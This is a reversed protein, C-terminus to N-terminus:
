SCAPYGFDVARAAEPLPIESGPAVLPRADVSSLSAGGHTGARGV